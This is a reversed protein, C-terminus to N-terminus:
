DLSKKNSAQYLLAKTVAACMIKFQAYHKETLSKARAGNRHQKDQSARDESVRDNSFNDAYFIAVPRKGVFVSMLFCEDTAITRKFDSPLLASLSSPSTPKIWISAPREMLKTFLTGPVLQTEFRAFESDPPNGIQYYTKIRSRDKNILCVAAHKLGIGHAIGKTAANMLEHLDVFDEPRNMMLATLENFLQSNASVEIPKALPEM